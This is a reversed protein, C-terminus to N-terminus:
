DGSSGVLGLGLDDVEADGLGGLGRERRVSCQGFQAGDQARGRVHTWFLGGEVAPVHIRAAVEIRQAHQEVFQEGSLRGEIGPFQELGAHFFHEASQALGIRGAGGSTQSRQGLHFQGGRGFTAGRFRRTQETGNPAIEVPDHHPRELLVAFATVGGGVVEGGIELPMQPVFGDFGPRGGPHIQGAPKNASVPDGERNGRREQDGQGATEGRTQPLEAAGHVGFGRGFLSAEFRFAM